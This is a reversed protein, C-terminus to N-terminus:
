GAGCERGAGVLTEPRGLSPLARALVADLVDHAHTRLERLPRNRHVRVGLDVEAIAARGFRRYVDVLLGVEIGYGDALVVDDLVSRRVACEGALPQAVDALEPFFRALLPRALLETVRGGEGPQGDLPRDYAPKVLQVADDDLLPAVLGTVFRESFHSVDADLFVVVDARTTALAHRLAQGKGPGSPNAVVTAGAAAALTATDDTSGDDVVVLDDVLGLEALRRCTAVVSGVTAAENRAPICVAVSTAGKSAAVHAPGAAPWAVQPRSPESVVTM